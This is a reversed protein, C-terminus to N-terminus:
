MKCPAHMMESGAESWRRKSLPLSDMCEWKCAGRVIKRAGMHWDWGWRVIASAAVSLKGFMEGVVRGWSEMKQKKFGGSM